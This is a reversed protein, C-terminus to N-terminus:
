PRAPAPRATVLGHRNGYHLALYEPKREQRHFNQRRISIQWRAEEHRKRLQL